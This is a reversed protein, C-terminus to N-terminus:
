GMRVPHKQNVYQPQGKAYLGSVNPTDILYLPL